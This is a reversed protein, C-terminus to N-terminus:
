SAPVVRATGIEALGSSVVGWMFRGYVRVRVHRGVARSKESLCLSEDATVRSMFPM